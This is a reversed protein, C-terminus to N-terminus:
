HTASGSASASLGTAPSMTLGASSMPILPPVPPLTELVLSFLTSSLHSLLFSQAAQLACMIHPSVRDMTPILVHINQQQANFNPFIKFVVSFSSLPTENAM